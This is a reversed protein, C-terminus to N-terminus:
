ALLIRAIREGSHGDGYPNAAACRPGEGRWADFATLIARTSTGAIRSCGAAIGEPRETVKRLVLVPVGFSPAEEQLGGSDTLVMSAKAVLGITLPYSLPETLEVNSLGCLREALPASANPNPHLAVILEHDPLRRAIAAIAAAIARMPRGFSERRHATVLLHPRDTLGPFRRAVIERTGPLGAVWLASDVVPNGVLHVEGGRREAALNAAAIPTPAFHWRATEAIRRRHIEEPFPNALDGSRLGAEVHALPLCAYSAALAGALASSTDGQVIVASFHEAAFMEALRATARATFDALSDGPRRAGLDIRRDFGFLQILPDLLAEHQGTLVVVPRAGAHELARYVPALKIAEPRTGVVLALTLM